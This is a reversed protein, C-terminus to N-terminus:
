YHVEMYTDYLTGVVVEFKLNKSTTLAFLKDEDTLDGGNKFQQLLNEVTQPGRNIDQLFEVLELKLNRLVEDAIIIIHRYNYSLLQLLAM